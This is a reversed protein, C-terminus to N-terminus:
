GIGLRRLMPAGGSEATRNLVEAAEAGQKAAPAIQSLMAAQDAAQQAQARSSRIEAVRDDPVIVSAPAGIMDWYEDIAQDTDLKDAADPKVAVLSTAFAMGRELAGTAVAKQAQALISIFELKLEVGQIEQPPPGFVGRADGLQYTRDIVPGLQQTHVGELVPGLALLKEEKREALEFVNRPQIGEMNQLMLFLDAFFSRNVRQQVDTIDGQLEQISLNVDIAPGYGRGTPDDVYTISGPLLSAPNNRMSAPAKMPPRVKKDIAETKRTQELQLMKVDPLATMGPSDAYHDEAIMEWPPCIIPNSDFGSEDLMRDRDGIGNAAEEWYCSAFPKNRKDPKRPDRDKRPEVIHCIVFREDYDGRDYCDRVVRSCNDLGFRGVIREVSWYFKRMLTTAIGNHDRAIWFAGQQLPVMRVIKTADEVLLMGPQGFLGLDGYGYHFADYINSASFIQRLKQEVRDLYEKVPGYERMDPDPTGLRFWPRAPSSIGSHMGSALTRWAFTGTSDVIRKRKTEVPKTVDSRFRKPAIYDALEQYQDDYPSRLEALTKARRQYKERKTAPPREAM